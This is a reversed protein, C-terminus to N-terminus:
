LYRRDRERMKKGQRPSAHDYGLLHLLGHVVYLGLEYVFTTNYALSNERAVDRCVVVDGLYDGEGDFALVDTPANRRLFENNLLRMKDADVFVICVGKRCREGRLVRGALRRVYASDIGTPKKRGQRILIRTM